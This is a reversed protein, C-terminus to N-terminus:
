KVSLINKERSKGIWKLILFNKCILLNNMFRIIQADNDFFQWHELNDPVSPSFIIVMKGQGKTLEECPQFTSASVALADAQSNEERPVAEIFLADFYEVSDWVANRYM